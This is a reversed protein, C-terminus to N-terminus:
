SCNAAAQGAAPNSRVAAIAHHLRGAIDNPAGPTLTFEEETHNILLYRGDQPLYDMWHFGHPNGTPRSDIAPGTFVGIEGMGSRPRRIVRNIEETRSIRTPHRTYEIKGIDSRTGRVAPFRGPACKPLCAAVRSAMDSPPFTFLLIDGGYEKTPGPLQLALTASKGVAGAHARVVQEFGRGYVGHVEIRIHPELLTRMALRAYNNPNDFVWGVGLEADECLEIPVQLGDHRLRNLLRFGQTVARKRKHIEVDPVGPVTPYFRIRAKRTDDVYHTAPWDQWGNGEGLTDDTILWNGVERSRQARIGFSHILGALLDSQRESIPQDRPPALLISSIGPLGSKQDHGDLGYLNIRSALPLECRTHEHHLFVLEQIHPVTQSPAKGNSVKALENKLRGALYQAKRRALLLPSPVNKGHSRKWRKDDGGITGYFHKLEILYMGGRSLVLLDVEHWRGDHDRFEFNSWARYPPADPLLDRVIQLGEREHPFRSPSEQVWRGGQM